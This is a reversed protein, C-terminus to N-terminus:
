FPIQDDPVEMGGGTAPAAAGGGGGGYGGRNGGGGGGGYNGGGGGARNGGYGGGGGQGGQPKPEPPTYDAVAMYSMMLPLLRCYGKAFAASTEGKTYPTGDGHVFQHWDNNGFEFKVKPREPKAADLLSIWVVGNEDKGFWLSSIVEPRESKKGQGFYRYNKLDIKDKFGNPAKEIMDEMRCIWSIFGVIDFAGAIRGGEGPDNPDNTYVTLRPNANIIAWDLRAYKGQVGPTPASMSLKRNDLGNKERPPRNFNGAM